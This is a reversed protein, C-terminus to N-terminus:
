DREIEMDSIHEINIEIREASKLINELDNKTTINKIYMDEFLTTYENDDLVDISISVNNKTIISFSNEKPRIICSKLHQFEDNKSIKDISIEFAERKTKAMILNQSIDPFMKDKTIQLVMHYIKPTTTNIQM